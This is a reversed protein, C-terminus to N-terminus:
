KENGHKRDKETLIRKIRIKKSPVTKLSISNEFITNEYFEYNMAFM